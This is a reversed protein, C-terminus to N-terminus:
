TAGNGGPKCVFPSLYFRPTPVGIIFWLKTITEVGTRMKAYFERLNSSVDDYDFRTSMQVTRTHHHLLLATRLAHLSLLLAFYRCRCLLPM